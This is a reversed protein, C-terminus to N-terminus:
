GIGGLFANGMQNRNSEAHAVVEEMNTIDLNIVMRAKGDAGVSAEGSGVANMAGLPSRGLSALRAAQRAAGESLQPVFSAGPGSEGEGGSGFLGSLVAAGSSLSAAKERLWDGAGSVASLLGAGSGQEGRASPRGEGRAADDALTTRELTQSAAGFERVQAAHQQVLEGLEGKIRTREEDSTAAALAENREEMKTLIKAMNEEATSRREEAGSREESSQDGLIRNTYERVSDPIALGGVGLFNGIREIVGGITSVNLVLAKILNKINFLEQVPDKLSLVAKLAQKTDEVQSGAQEAAQEQLKQIEEAVKATDGEQIMRAFRRKQVTDLGTVGRSELIRSLASTDSVNGFLERNADLRAKIGGQTTSLMNAIDVNGLGEGRAKIAEDIGARMEETLDGERVGLRQAVREQVAKQESDKMDGYGAEINNERRFAEIEQSIQGSLRRGALFTEPSTDEKFLVQGFAQAFKSAGKSSIGYEVAKRAAFQYAAAVNELDTTQSTFQRHAEMMARVFDERIAFAFAKGEFHTGELAERMLDAQVSFQVLEAGAEDIDTGMQQFRESAYAAGEEASLNAVTKLYQLQDALRVVEDTGDAIDVKTLKVVTSGLARAAEDTINYRAALAIMEDDLKQAAQYYKWVLPAQEALQKGFGTTANLARGMTGSLDNIDFNLDQIQESAQPLRGRLVLNDVGGKWGRFFSGLVTSTDSMDDRMETLFLKAKEYMKALSNAREMEKRHYRERATDLERLAKGQDGLLSSTKEIANNQTAIARAAAQARSEAAQGTKAEQGQLQRLAASYSRVARSHIQLQRSDAKSGIGEFPNDPM